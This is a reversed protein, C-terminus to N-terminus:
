DWLGTYYKGFLEFGNQMRAIHAKMGKDDIAPKKDWVMKSMGNEEDEWHWTGPDTYYEDEWSKDVQSFTWIMEDMVWDWRPEWNDDLEWEEEKPPASSRHLRKPVDEDYVKPSGHTTEKLQILMPLIIHALTEDMSWTDYKDIRVKVTRRRKADIWECVDHVWTDALWDGMDDCREETVGVKQLLSALQYTGIFEKYPGIFIKM